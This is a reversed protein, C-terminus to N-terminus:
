TKGRKRRQRSPVMREEVVEDAGNLQLRKEIERGRSSPRVEVLLTLGRLDEKTEPIRRVKLNAYPTNHQTTIDNM